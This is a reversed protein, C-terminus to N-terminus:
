RIAPAEFLLLSAHVDTPKLGRFDSALNQANSSISVSLATGDEFHFVMAESQHLYERVREPGFEVSTIRRGVMAHLTSMMEPSAPAGVIEPFISIAQRRRLCADASADLVSELWGEFQALASEINLLDQQFRDFAPLPTPPTSRVGHVKNRSDRCQKLAKHVVPILAPPLIQKLSNLTRTSDQLAIGLHGAIRQLGVVTLGDGVLRYLEVSADLYARSNEAAPYGLEPNETEQFLPEGLTFYTLANIRKLRRGIQVIPGDESEWSGAFNRETWRAFAPDEPQFSDGICRFAEWIPRDSSPLAGLDPTFAAVRVGGQALQRFAFRIHFNDANLEGGMDDEILSYQDPSQRYHALVDRDHYSLLASYQDMMRYPYRRDLRLNWPSAPYVESIGM